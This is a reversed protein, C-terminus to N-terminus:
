VHTCTQTMEQTRTPFPLHSMTLSTDKEGEGQEANIRTTGSHPSRRVSRGVGPVVVGWTCSPNGQDRSAGGDWTGQFFPKGEMGNSSVRSM